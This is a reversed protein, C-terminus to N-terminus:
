KIELKNKRQLCAGPVEVGESLVEKLKIKDVSTVVKERLYEQPLALDDFVDVSVPCKKIRIKFYPSTNIEGISMKVLNYQLYESLSDCKSKLSSRRKNMDDVAQKIAAEEAELNKIYSAITIAKSEFDEKLEDMSDLMDQTIEGHEDVNSFISEFENTIQYLKM